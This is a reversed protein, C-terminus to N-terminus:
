ISTRLRRTQFGLKKDWAPVIFASHYTLLNNRVIHKINNKNCIGCRDEAFIEEILALEKFIEKQGSGELEFSLKTSPSYIAKM